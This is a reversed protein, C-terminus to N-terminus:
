KLGWHGISYHNGDPKKFRGGWHHPFEPTSLSEWYEGLKLHAGSDPQYVGDIFLNLDLALSSLHLSNAIGAGSAANAKAELPTRLAQGYTFEYGLSHGYAILKQTDRLFAWQKQLLISPKPM